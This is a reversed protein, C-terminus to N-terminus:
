VHFLATRCYWCSRSGFAGIKLNWFRASTCKAASGSSTWMVVRSVPSVVRNRGKLRPLLGPPIRHPAPLGGCGEPYRVPYKQSSTSSRSRNRSM